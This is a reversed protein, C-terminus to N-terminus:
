PVTRLGEASAGASLRRDWSALVPAGDGFALASALHVGDAGSLSHDHALLGARRGVTPTLEIPRVEAWYEKWRQLVGPLDADALRHGRNVAALAACVEPYVLRSSLAVDCADWLQVMVETGAEAVLLKVLASADFYVIAM